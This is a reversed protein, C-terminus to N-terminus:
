LLAQLSQNVRLADALSTAGTDGINNEFLSFNVDCGCPIVCVCYNFYVSCVSCDDFYHDGEMLYIYFDIMVCDFPLYAYANM